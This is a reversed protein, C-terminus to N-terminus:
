WSNSFSGAGLEPGAEADLIIRGPQSSNSFSDGESRKENQIESPNYSL